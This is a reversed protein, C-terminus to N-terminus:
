QVSRLVRLLEGPLVPLLTKLRTAVHVSVHTQARTKVKVKVQIRFQQRLQIALIERLRKLLQEPLRERQRQDPQEDQLVTLELDRVIERQIPLSWLPPPRHASPHATSNHGLVRDMGYTTAVRM